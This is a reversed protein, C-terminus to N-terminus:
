FSMRLFAGAGVVDVTVPGPINELSYGVGGTTAYYTDATGAKAALKILAVGNGYIIASSDAAAATLKVNRLAVDMSSVAQGAGANFVKSM